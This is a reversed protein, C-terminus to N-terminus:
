EYIAGGLEKFRQNNLKQIKNLVIDSSIIIGIVCIICWIGLYSQAFLILDGIVPIKHGTYHYLIKDASVLTQDKSPNNDGRFIYYTKIINGNSDKVEQTDVLRHTIIINNYSYAYVEGIKLEDSAKEFFCIDGYSFQLNKDYGLEEYDDTLADDYFGSMSGSKIVLATNGNVSFSNNNNRYVIGAIFLGLLALLLISTLVYSIIKNTVKKQKKSNLEECLEIDHKGQALEVKYKKLCASYGLWALGFIAGALVVVVVISTITISGM